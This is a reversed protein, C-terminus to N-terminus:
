RLVELLCTESAEDVPVMLEIEFGEVLSDHVSVLQGLVSTLKLQAGGIDLIVPVYIPIDDTGTMSQSIGAFMGTARATEFATRIAPSHASAAQLRFYFTPLVEEFNVIRERFTDSLILTFFNIQGTDADRFPGFMKEAPGNMRLFSWASDLVFAPFPWHRLIRMEIMDLTEAVEASGFDRRKYPNRYDSAEFLAGRQGANLNLETALRGRM